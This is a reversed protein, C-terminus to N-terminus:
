KIKLNDAINGIIEEDLPYAPFQGSVVTLLDVSISGWSDVRVM